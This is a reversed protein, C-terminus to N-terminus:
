TRPTSSGNIGSLRGHPVVSFSSVASRSLALTKLLFGRSPSLILKLFWPDCRHTLLRSLQYGCGLRRRNKTLATTPGHYIGPALRLSSPPKLKFCPSYFSTALVIASTEYHYRGSLIGSSYMPRPGSANLLQEQHRHGLRTATESFLWLYDTSLYSTPCAIPHPTDVEQM